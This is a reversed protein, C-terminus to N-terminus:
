WLKKVVEYGEIIRILWGQSFDSSQATYILRISFFLWTSWSWTPLYLRQQGLCSFFSGSAYRERGEEELSFRQITVLIKGTAVFLKRHLRTMPTTSRPCPAICYLLALNDKYPAEKNPAWSLWEPAGKTGELAMTGQEFIGGVSIHLHYSYINIYWHFNAPVLSQLLVM